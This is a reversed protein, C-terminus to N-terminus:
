QNECKLANIVEAAAKERSESADTLNILQNWLNCIRQNYKKPDIASIALTIERADEWRSEYAYGEILPLWEQPTKVWQDRPNYGQSRAQDAIEVVLKWNKEQRALDAKQYFYCFGHAPEAGLMDVSPYDRSVPQAEIRDLNSAPLMKLTLDPLDPNDLDPPGLVWLCNTRGPAYYVMISNPTSGSFSLTRFKTKLPIGLPKSASDVFRPQLGYFWYALGEHDPPQPYLLNIAASTSFGGQHPFLEEEALIATDPKIYPARWILQWYFDKQQDWIQRYFASTRIHFVVSLGVLVVLIAVKAAKRNSLWEILSVWVLSAGFMAPLAYRNAHFDDSVLRGSIWAPFAGLATAALGVMLAQKIWLPNGEGEDDNDKLRCLYTELILVTALAVVWALKTGPDVYFRPLVDELGGQLVGAWSTFLIYVTEFISIRALQILAQVPKSFLEVLLVPKYPDEGPLQIFVLRYLLYLTLVLVYPSSHKLVRFLKQLFTSNKKLIFWLLFFRVMELPAFYETISLQIVLTIISIITYPIFFKPKGVAAVMCGWSTMVLAVQLWQQHFTLAVAQQSFIPYVTFLIAAYTVPRRANPWVNVLCWWMAVAGIWRLFLTFVHWGLPRAGLIPTFFIHTWASLPRDEAYYQWYGALGYLRAVLIKAWDDWYFGLYPILLGFSVVCLILLALPVTKTSFKMKM